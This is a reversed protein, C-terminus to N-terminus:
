YYKIVEIHKIIGSPKFIRIRDPNADDFSWIRNIVSETPLVYLQKVGNVYVAWKSKVAYLDTTNILNSSYGTMVVYTANVDIWEEWYEIGLRVPAGSDGIYEPYEPETDPDNSVDLLNTSPFDKFVEWLDLSYVGQDVNHSWTLPIHLKSDWNYRDLLYLTTGATNILSSKIVRGYKYRMSLMSAMSLQQLPLTLGLDDDTWEVSLAWNGGTPKVFLGRQLLATDSDFFRISTEHILTNRTDGIEYIITNEPVEVLGELGNPTIIFRSKKLLTTQEIKTTDTTIESGSIGHAKVSVISFTFIDDEIIEISSGTIGFNKFSAYLPGAGWVEASTKLIAIKITSPALTWEYTLPNFANFPAFQIPTNKLIHWDLAAGENDFYTNKLYSDGIKVQMEIVIFFTNIGLESSLKIDFYLDHVLFSGTGIQYGCDHPGRKDPGTQRHYIDSGALINYFQKNQKLAVAKLPAIHTLEPTPLVKIDDNDVDRQVKTSIAQLQTGTYDYTIRLPFLKDQSSLQEFHWSGRSYYMRMNFGNLIDQLVTMASEYRRYTRSVETWYHNRMYVQGLQNNSSLQSEEWQMNTSFMATLPLPSADYFENAVDNKKLLQTILEIFSYATSLFVSTDIFNEPRFEITELQKIGCHATIKVFQHHSIKLSGIDAILKGVFM